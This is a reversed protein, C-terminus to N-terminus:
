RARPARTHIVLRGPEVAVHDVVRPMRWTLLEDPRIGLVAWVWRPPVPQRGIRAADVVVAGEGEQVQLRGRTVLWLDLDLVAKPLVAGLAGVVSGALADGVSTRGMLELWGDELRVVLPRVALRRSEVHRALFANLEPATVALPERRGSVGGQRLLLEALVHQVRFSAAQDPPPPTLDPQGLMRAALGLGVLGALM